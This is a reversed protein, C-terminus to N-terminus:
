RPLPMKRGAPSGPIRAQSSPLYAVEMGATSVWLKQNYREVWLYVYDTDRLSRKTFAEADDHWQATLRTITAASLGATSGVFQELAPGFDSSSLGHLYLLPLVQAVQPSKRSGPLIAATFRKREGTTEDIRKDNVRPARVGVAGAATVV